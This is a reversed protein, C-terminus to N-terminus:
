LYVCKYHSIIDRERERERERETTGIFLERLHGRIVPHKDVPDCSIKTQFVIHIVTSFRDDDVFGAIGPHIHRNYKHMQSPISTPM